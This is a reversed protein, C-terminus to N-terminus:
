GNDDPEGGLEALLRAFRPAEREADRPSAADVQQLSSYRVTVTAFPKPVLHRDWSRMRWARSASAKFAIIPRGTRQALILAGSSFHHRPGRPGDPTIAVSRGERLLRSMELLARAGGRSTSGRVTRYGLSTVVRAILEGDRHTSILPAIGHRRHVWAIPLIEGHWFVVIVPEGRSLPDDLRAADERRIRWTWALLRIAV